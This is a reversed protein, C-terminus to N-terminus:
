KEKSGGEKPKQYTKKWGEKISTLVSEVVTWDTESKIDWDFSGRDKTIIKIPYISNPLLTVPSSPPSKMGDGHVPSKEDQEPISDFITKGIDTIVARAQNGKGVYRLLKLYQCYNLFTAIAKDLVISSPSQDSWSDIFKQKIENSKLEQASNVWKFMATYEEPMSQALIKRRDDGSSFRFSKVGLKTLSIKSSNTEALGLYKALNLTYSRNPDKAAGVNVWLSEQKIGDPPANRLDLLIKDLLEMDSQYPLHFAKREKTSM